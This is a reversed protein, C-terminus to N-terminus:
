FRDLNLEHKTYEIIKVLNDPISKKNVVEATELNLVYKGNDIWVLNYQYRTGQQRMVVLSYDHTKHDSLHLTYLIGLAKALDCYCNEVILTWPDPWTEPQQSELYFPQFPASGWFQAVRDLAPEFELKDIEKRFRKWQELRDPASLKWM